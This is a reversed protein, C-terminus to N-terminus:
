LSILHANGHDSVFWVNPYFNTKDMYARVAKEMNDSEKLSLVRKGDQYFNLHDHTTLDGEEPETIEM